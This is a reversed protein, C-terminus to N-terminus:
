VHSTTSLYKMKHINRPIKRLNSKVLAKGKNPLGAQSFAVKQFPYSHTKLLIMDTAASYSLRLDHL